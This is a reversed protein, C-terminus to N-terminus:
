SDGFKTPFSEYSKKAGKHKYFYFVWRVKKSIKNTRILQNSKRIIKEFTKPQAQLNWQTAGM